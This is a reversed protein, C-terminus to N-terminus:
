EDDADLDALMEGINTYRKVKSIDENLARITVANLDKGAKKQHSFFERVKLRKHMM